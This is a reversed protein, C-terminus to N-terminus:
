DDGTKTLRVASRGASQFHAIPIAQWNGDPEFLMLTEKPAEVLTGLVPPDLDYGSPLLMQDRPWFTKGPLQPLPRGIVLVEGKGSVAFRFPQLRTGAATEAYIKWSKLDTLLAIAENVENSRSLSIRVPLFLKGPMASVPLEIPVFAKIPQWDLKPLKGTPTKQQDPFLREEPDANYRHLIPLSAIRKDPTSGVAIGRLWILDRDAAAKLGPIGRLGGLKDGYKSELVLIKEMLRHAHDKEL